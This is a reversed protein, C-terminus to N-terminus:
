FGWAVQFLFGNDHLSRFRREQNIEFFFKLILSEYLYYNLGMTYRNRDVPIAERSAFSVGTKALDIGDFQVYDYRLVGETKQWFGNPLDLPRYAVQGYLGQRNIPSGPAQQRTNAYEFRFDWNGWHYGADFDWINLDFDHRADYAGNAMGSLGVTVGVEPLNVGVRGGVAKSNNVRTAADKMNALDAFDKATPNAAALSFGNAVFAAYELKVPWSTPYDAGRLVVGNVNLQEPLVQSFMLPRDPTKYVWTTHLRDNFFGLPAYVRGIEICLNDTLCWDLQASFVDISQANIDPNVELMFHENLLMYFHPLFDPTPFQSNSSEFSQFNATLTGWIGFPSENNREPHFLEKLTSPLDLWNRHEADATERLDDVATALEQDRQAAQQQRAELVATKTQLKELAAGAPPAKKVEEALLKVMKELLQIQKQQIEVQKRLNDDGEKAQTAAPQTNLRNLEEQLEVGGLGPGEVNKARRRPLEEAAQPNQGLIVVKELIQIEKQQFEMLKRLNDDGEKAQTAAPQTNLSNLEKQCRELEGHGPDECDKSRAEPVVEVAHPNEPQAGPPRAATLIVVGVLLANALHRM